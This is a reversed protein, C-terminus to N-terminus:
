LKNIIKVNFRDEIDRISENITPKNWTLFRSWWGPTMIGSKTWNERKQHRIIYRNKRDNDKHTTYDDYRIDGFNISKNGIKVAYKKFKRNSKYLYIENM